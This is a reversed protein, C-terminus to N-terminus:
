NVQAAFQQCRALNDALETTNVVFGDFSSEYFERPVQGYQLGCAPCHFVAEFFHCGALFKRSAVDSLGYWDFWIEGDSRSLIRKHSAARDLVLRTGRHRECCPALSEVWRGFHAERTLATDIPERGRRIVPELLSSDRELPNM